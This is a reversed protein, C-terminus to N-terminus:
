SNLRNLRIQTSRHTRRMSEYEKMARAHEEQTRELDNQTHALQEDLYLRRESLEKTEAEISEQQGRIMNIRRNRETITSSLAKLEESLRRAEEENEAKAEESINKTQIITAALAKLREQRDDYVKKDTALQIEIDDAEKSLAAATIRLHKLRKSIEKSEAALDDHHESIQRMNESISDAKAKYEGLRQDSAELYLNRYYDTLQMDLLERASTPDLVPYQTLSRVFDSADVEKQRSSIQQIARRLWPAGKAEIKSAMKLMEDSPYTEGFALQGSSIFIDKFRQTLDPSKIVDDLVDALKALPLFTITYYEGNDPNKDYTKVAYGGHSGDRFLMFFDRLAGADNRDSPRIDTRKDSLWLQMDDLVEINRVAAHSMLEAFRPRNPRRRDCQLLRNLLSDECALAIPYLEKNFRDYAFRPYIVNVFPATVDFLINKANNFPAFRRTSVDKRWGDSDEPSYNLRKTYLNRRLGLIFFEVLRLRQKLTDDPAAKEQELKKFSEIISRTEEALAWGNIKALERPSGSHPIYTNGALTFFSGGALNFYEPIADTNHANRLLPISKGTPATVKIGNEDLHKSSTMDDYLEYLLMSYHTRIFFLLRRSEESDEFRRIMSMLYMLDGVSINVPNNATDVIEGLVRRSADTMSSTNDNDAKAASWGQLNRALEYLHTVVLKNLKPLSTEDFIRWAFSRQEPTLTQLWQERFYQRFQEKNLRHIDPVKEDPQEMCFLLTVLYRLERLNRPVILSTEGDHNYFLYRTKQFILSLVAFEVSPFDTPKGERDIVTLQAQMLVEAAPMYVRRETPLFKELYREAMEGIEGHSVTRDLLKGYHQSLEQIISQRLQDLKAALLIVVKPLLLYKRIEEMMKYSQSINLDLDDISVILCKQGYYELYTQILEHMIRRLEVGDSLRGLEELEDIPKEQQRDNLFYIAHKAEKFRSQLKKLKQRAETSLSAYKDCEKQYQHYLEGIFIDLINHTKDFFSPDIVPMLSVQKALSVGKDDTEAKILERVTMLSSTKGTGREGLFPIINNSYVDADSGADAATMVASRLKSLGLNIADAFPSIKREDDSLVTPLSEEGIKFIM